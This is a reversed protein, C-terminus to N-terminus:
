SSHNVIKSFVESKFTHCPGSHAESSLKSYKASIFANKKLHNQFAWLFSIPGHFSVRKFGVLIVKSNKLSKALVGINFFVESYNRRFFTLPKLLLGGYTNKLFLIRFNHPLDVPSYGHRLIIEIVNSQLKISIVNQCPRKETFKSCIKLVGKGLFM